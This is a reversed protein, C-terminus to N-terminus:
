ELFRKRIGSEIFDKGAGNSLRTYNGVCDAGCSTGHRCILINSSLGITRRVGKYIFIQISHPGPAFYYNSISCGGTPSSQVVKGDIKVTMDALSNSAFCITDITVGNAVVFTSEFMVSRVSAPTAWPTQQPSGPSELYFNGGNGGFFQSDSINQFVVGPLPQGQANVYSQRDDLFQSAGNIAYRSWNGDGFALRSFDTHNVDSNFSNNYDVNVTYNFSIAAGPNQLEPTLVSPIAHAYVGNVPLTVRPYFADNVLPNCNNVVQAADSGGKLNFM